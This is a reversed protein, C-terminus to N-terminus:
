GNNTVESNTGAAADSATEGDTEPEQDPLPQGDKFQVTKYLRPYSRVIEQAQEHYFGSRQEEASPLETVDVVGHLSIPPNLKRGSADRGVFRIMPGVPAQIEERQTPQEQDAPRTDTQRAM